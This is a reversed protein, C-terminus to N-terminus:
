YFYLCRRSKFWLKAKSITASNAVSSDNNYSATRDAVMKLMDQALYVDILNTQTHWHFNVMSITPYHVYACTKAGGLYKAIPLVFAFGTTDIFVNPTILSLAEWGLILSGLSQGLLTFRPYKRAEIWHRQKLYVFTIFKEDVFEINFQTKVRSLIQEASAADGTYVYCRTTKHYGKNELAKIACWLVREGGGGANSPKIIILLLSTSSNGILIFSVLRSVM